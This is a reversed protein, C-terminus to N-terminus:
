GVHLLAIRTIFKTFLLNMMIIPNLSHNMGVESLEGLHVVSKSSPDYVLDGQLEEWVRSYEEELQDGTLVAETSKLDDTEELIMMEAVMREDHSLVPLSVEQTYKGGGEGIPYRFDEYRLIANMEERLLAEPGDIGVMYKAPIGSGRPLGRKMVESRRALEERELAEEEERIRREVEEADEM